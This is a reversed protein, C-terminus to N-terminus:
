GISPASEQKQNALLQSTYVRIKRKVDDTHSRVLFSCWQHHWLPLWSRRGSEKVTRHSWTVSHQYSSQSWIFLIALIKFSHFHKLILIHCVNNLCPIFKNGRTQKRPYPFKDVSLMAIGRKAKPRAHYQSALHPYIETDADAFLPHRISDCEMSKEHITTRRGVPYPFKDLSLMAIGRKAKPQTPYQSALHPYIETDAFLPYSISDCEMSSEHITTRRGVITSKVKQNLLNLWRRQETLYLQLRTQLRMVEMDMPQWIGLMCWLHRTLDPQLVQTRTISSTAWAVAM